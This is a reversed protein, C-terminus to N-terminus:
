HYHLPRESGTLTTCEFLKKAKGAKKLLVERTNKRSLRLFIRSKRRNSVRISYHYVFPISTLEGIHLRANRGVRRREIFEGVYVHESCLAGIVSSWTLKVMYLTPRMMKERGPSKM